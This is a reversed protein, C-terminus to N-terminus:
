ENKSDTDFRNWKIMKLKAIYKQMHSGFFKEFGVELFPSIPRKLRYRSIFDNLSVKFNGENMGDSIFLVRQIKM